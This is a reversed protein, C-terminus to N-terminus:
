YSLFHVNVIIAINGSCFFVYKNVLKSFEALMSTGIKSKLEFLDCIYEISEIQRFISFDQLTLQIAVEAANLHLLHVDSERIFESALEDPVLNETVGNTKLYYRSSLGIREALNQLQDPLRKQKILQGDTVSVECLSFMSSPETM